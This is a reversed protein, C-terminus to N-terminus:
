RATSPRISVFGHKEAAAMDIDIQDVAHMMADIDRRAFLTGSRRNQDACDLRQFADIDHLLM